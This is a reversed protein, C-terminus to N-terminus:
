RTLGRRTLEADVHRAILLLGDDTQKALRERCELELLAGGPEPRAALRGVPSDPRPTNWAPPRRVLPRDDPHEWCPEPALCQCVTGAAEPHAPRGALFTAPGLRDLHITFPQTQPQQQQVETTGRPLVHVAPQHAPRTM